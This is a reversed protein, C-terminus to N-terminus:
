LEESGDRSGMREASPVHVRVPCEDRDEAQSPRDTCGPEWWRRTSPYHCRRSSPHPTARHISRHRLLQPRDLYRLDGHRAMRCKPCQGNTYRSHPLPPISVCDRSRRRHPHINSYINTPYRYTSSTLRHEQVIASPLKCERFEGQIMACLRTDTGSGDLVWGDISWKSPDELPHKTPPVSQTWWRQLEEPNTPSKLTEMRQEVKDVGRFLNRGPLATWRDFSAPVVRTDRTRQVWDYHVSRSRLTNSSISITANPAYAAICQARDSDFLPFYRGHTNEGFSGRIIGSVQRLVAHDLWLGSGVGHISGQRRCSLRFAKRSTGEKARKDLPDKPTSCNSLRSPEPQSRRSYASKPVAQPYRQGVYARSTLSITQVSKSNTYSMVM